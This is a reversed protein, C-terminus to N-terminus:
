FLDKGGVPADNERYYHVKRVKRTAVSATCSREEEDYVMGRNVVVESFRRGGTQQIM